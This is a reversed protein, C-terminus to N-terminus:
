RYIILNEELDDYTYRIKAKEIETDVYEKMDRIDREQKETLRQLDSSCQNIQEASQNVQDKVEAIDATYKNKLDVISSKIEHQENEVADFNDNIVEEM